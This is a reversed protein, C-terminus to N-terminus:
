TENAPDLLLWDNLHHLLFKRECIYITYVASHHRELSRQFLVTFRTGDVCNALHTPSNVSNFRCSISLCSIIFLLLLFLFDESIIRDIKLKLTGKLEILNFVVFCFNISLCSTEIEKVLAIEM